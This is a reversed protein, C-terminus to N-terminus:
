KKPLRMGSPEGRMSRAFEPDQAAREDLKRNWEVTDPDDIEGMYVPEQSFRRAEAERIKQNLIEIQIDQESPKPTFFENTKDGLEALKPYRERAYKELPKSAAWDAAGLLHTKVTEMGPASRLADLVRERFSKPQVVPPPEPPINPKNPWDERPTSRARGVREAFTPDKLLERRAEEDLQEPTKDAM